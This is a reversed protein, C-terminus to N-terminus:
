GMKLQSNSTQPEAAAASPTAGGALSDLIAAIALTQTRAALSATEPVIVRTIVDRVGASIRAWSPIVNGAPIDACAGIRPLMERMLQPILQGLWAFRLDSSKGNQFLMAALLHIVAVKFGALMEYFLLDHVAVGSRAQYIDLFEEMSLAGPLSSLGGLGGRWLFTVWGVDTMPDGVTTMEWDFVGVIREDQYFINGPKPDGHVLTVTPSPQPMHERLWRDIVEFAPLPGPHVRRLESEWWALEREVPNGGQDLFGLGRARWDVAHIAAFVEAYRTCMRRIKEPPAAALYDPIEFEVIVGDLKEMIFFPRGIVREDSEAWYMKPVPVDSNELAKMVRYQKLVDYPELLGEGQPRTRLVFLQRREAGAQSWSVDVAFTENSHGASLRWLDRLTTDSAQPGLQASFWRELAPRYEAMECNVKSASAGNSGM